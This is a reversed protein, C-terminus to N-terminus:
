SRRYRAFLAYASAGALVLVALYTFLARYAEEPLAGTTAGAPMFSEMIFGSVPQTIGVGVFVWVNISTLSRGRLRDDFLSRGHEIIAPFFNSFLGFVLLVAILATTPINSWLALTTMCSFSIGAFVLVVPRPTGLRSSLWGALFIGVTGLAAMAFLLRGTVSTGLGHIDVMYLGLWLGRIAFNTSYGILAAGILGPMAPHRFIEGLGRIVSLLSEPERKTWDSGPPADRVVFLMLVASVLIGFIAVSFGWRWGIWGMIWVFPETASLNGIYGLSMMTASLTAFRTPPWWRAILVIAGMFVASTGLGLVFMGAALEEFSKGFAFLMGGAVGLFLTLAVTLRPGYRDFLVGSPIQMLAIGWFFAGTVTGLQEASLGIETRLTPGLVGTVSRTFQCLIFCAAAIAFLWVRGRRVAPSDYDVSPVTASTSM